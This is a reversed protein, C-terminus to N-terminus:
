KKECKVMYTHYSNAARVFERLASESCDHESMVVLLYPHEDKTKVIGADNYVYGKGTVTCWGAKTFTTCKKNNKLAKKIFSNAGKKYYKRLWKSHKNTNKFLYWYQGTWLKSLTKPSYTVWTANADLEKSGSYKKFKSLYGSGFRSRLARYDDNSSWNMIARIHGKASSDISGSKYKCISAVYPAKITSAGYVKKNAQSSIGKGTKLDVMIFACTKGGKRVKKLVKAFKKGAKCKKNFKAGGLGTIKKSSRAKKISKIVQKRTAAKKKVVKKKIVAAKSNTANASQLLVSGSNAGGDGSSAEAITGLINTVIAEEVKTSATYTEGCSEFFSKAAISARKDSIDTSSSDASNASLIDGQAALAGGSVFFCATIGASLIYKMSNKHM